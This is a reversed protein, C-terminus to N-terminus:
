FRTTVAGTVRYGADVRPLWRWKDFTTCPHSIGLGVLEGVAPPPALAPDFRLYAHQDNLRTIAWGEPAPTTAQDGPRARWLPVPLDMDIGLDRKGAGLLALGPEPVSQVAALLELAPQLTTAQRLRLGMCRLHRHYHVHDHVLYCGSRLVGRVPVGLEPQLREAVLDFVSSGGASLILAEGTTDFAQVALLGRALADVRDMLAHVAPVDRADDCTALAGEYCELGALRLAPSAAIRRGLALAEDHGRTGTRQGALGLELLVDFVRDQGRAARWAEIAEVQAVSDVLFWARAGPHQRLAHDLADLEAAQVVQNAILLRAVGARAGQAAQWVTAFSIGWAGAQLQMAWLEPSMTTKGHPALSLGRAACFDAMWALNHALADDRLVALPLALDGRLLAWGAAGADEPRMPPLHAPFGKCDHDLMM